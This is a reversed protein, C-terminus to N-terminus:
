RPTITSTSAVKASLSAHYSSTARERGGLSRGQYWTRTLPESDGRTRSTVTHRSVRPQSSGAFGDSWQGTETAFRDGYGSWLPRAEMSVVRHRERLREFLVRYTAPPLGNAHAFHLTPGTGGWDLWGESNAIHLSETLM